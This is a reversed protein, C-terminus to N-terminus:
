LPKAVPFQVSHVMYHCEAAPCPLKAPSAVVQCCSVPCSPGLFPTMQFALSRANWDGWLQLQIPSFWITQLGRSAGQASALCDQVQCCASPQAPLRKADPMKATIPGWCLCSPVSILCCECQKTEECSTVEDQVATNLPALSGFQVAKLGLILHKCNWCCEVWTQIRIHFLCSFEKYSCEDNKRSWQGM